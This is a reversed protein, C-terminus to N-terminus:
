CHNHLKVTKGSKICYIIRDAELWLDILTPNHCLTGDASFVLSNYANVYDYIEINTAYWIDERNSLKKCIEELQEWNDANNFEYSHGWLYFLMPKRTPIYEKGEFNQTFDDIYDMLQPNNHHATPIWCHWDEPLEFRSNDRGLSRAYAVGLFTLYRKVDAYEVANAFGTVGTDPYAMGRIITGFRKELDLRCNLVDRIGDTASIIGQAKHFEGHLAIENGTDILHRQIENASLHFGDDDKQAIYGSNINFTCKIGYSNAIKALKIDYRCGDDYSFTVAKPKGNPFRLFRYKM